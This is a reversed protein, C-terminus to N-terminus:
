TGGFQPTGGHSCRAAAGCGCGRLGEVAVCGCGAGEGRVRGTGVVDVAVEERGGGRGGAGEGGGILGVAAGQAHYVRYRLGPGGGGGQPPGLGQGKVTPPQGRGYALLVARENRAIM